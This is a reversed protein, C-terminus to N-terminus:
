WSGIGLIPPIPKKIGIKIEAIKKVSMNSFNVKNVIAISIITKSPKNSSKIFKCKECFNIKSNKEALKINKDPKPTLVIPKSKKSCGAIEKIIVM